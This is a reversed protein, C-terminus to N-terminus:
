SEQKWKCIAIRYDKIQYEEFYECKCIAKQPSIKEGRIWIDKGLVAAIGQGTLKGYAEKCAWLRYFLEQREEATDCAALAKKEEESFFRQAIRDDKLQKARQIDVGVEQMSIVCFIYEGSHSLNFYYPYNKLYPKGNEGFTYELPLPEDATKELAVLLESVTLQVIEADYLAEMNGAAEEKNQASTVKWMWLDDETQAQMVAYQLLMGAGVAEAVKHTMQVSGTFDKIWADEAGILRKVKDLRGDDLWKLCRMVLEQQEEGTEDELLESISLLYKKDQM